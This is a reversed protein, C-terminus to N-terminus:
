EFDFQLGFGLEAATYVSVSIDRTGFEDDLLAMERLRQVLQYFAENYDLSALVDGFSRVQDPVMGLMKFQRCDAATLAVTGILVARQSGAAVQNNM